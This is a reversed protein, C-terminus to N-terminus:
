LLVLLAPVHGDAPGLGSISPVGACSMRCGHELKKSDLTRGRPRQPVQGPIRSMHARPPQSPGSFSRCCNPPCGTVKAISM